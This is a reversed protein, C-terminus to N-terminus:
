NLEELQTNQLPLRTVEDMLRKVLGNGGVDLYPLYMCNLNELEEPTIWGRKIYSFALGQIRDHAIGKLLRSDGSEKKMVSIRYTWYGSSALVAAVATIVVQLLGIFNFNNCPM